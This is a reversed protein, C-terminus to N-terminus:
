SKGTLTDLLQVMASELFDTRRELQEVIEMLAVVQNSVIDPQLEPATYGDWTYGKLRQYNAKLRQRIPERM